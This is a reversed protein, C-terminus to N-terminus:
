AARPLSTDEEQRDTGLRALKAALLAEALM